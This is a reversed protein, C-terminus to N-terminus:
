IQPLNFLVPDSFDSMRNQYLPAAEPEDSKIVSLIVACYSNGTVLPEGYNDTFDGSENVAEYYEYDVDPKGEKLSDLQASAKEIDAPLKKLEDQLMGQQAKLLVSETSLKRLENRTTIIESALNVETVETTSLKQYDAIIRNLLTYQESQEDAIQKMYEMADSESQIMIRESHIAQLRAICEALDQRLKAVEDPMPDEQQLDGSIKGEFTQSQDDLEKLRAANSEFQKKYRALEDNMVDIHKQLENPLNQNRTAVIYDAAPVTELIEEDIYFASIKAQNMKEVVHVQDNYDARAAQVLAKAVNM